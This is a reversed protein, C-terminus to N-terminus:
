DCMSTDLIYVENRKRSTVSQDINVTEAVSMSENLRDKSLGFMDLIKTPACSSNLISHSVTDKSRNLVNPVEVQSHAAPPHIVLTQLDTASAGENSISSEDAPDVLLLPNQSM